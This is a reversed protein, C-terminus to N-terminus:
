DQGKIEIGVHLSTQLSKAPEDEEGEVRLSLIDGVRVRNIGRVRSRPEKRKKM